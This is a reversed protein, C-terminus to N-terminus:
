HQTGSGTGATTTGTDPQRAANANVAGSRELRAALEEAREESDCQCTIHGLEHALTHRFRLRSERFKRANIVTTHKYLNTFGTQTHVHAIDILSDWASQNCVVGITWNPPYRLTALEQQVAQYEETCDALKDVGYVLLKPLPKAPVQASARTFLLLLLFLLPFTRM